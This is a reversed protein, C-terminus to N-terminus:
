RHARSYLRRLVEHNLSAALVRATGLNVFAAFWLLNRYEGIDLAGSSWAMAFWALGSTMYGYVALWVCKGRHRSSFDRLGHWRCKPSFLQTAGFPVVMLLHAVFAWYIALPYGTVIAAARLPSPFMSGVLTLPSYNLALTGLIAFIFALRQAEEAYEEQSKPPAALPPPSSLEAPVTAPGKM